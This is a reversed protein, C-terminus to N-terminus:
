DEAKLARQMLESLAERPSKQEFLVDCVADTIPVSVQHKQALDRAARATWVGEAVMVMGALVQDLTEGRGIREGVVRNRSQPSSCTTVLDGLGSLGTFTQRKGGLTEGLRILETLGRTVLAGKANFGLKMGDCMGAALAIVNKLAGAFEVGVVDDSSYLRFHPASFAAQVEKAAVANTSAVTASTPLGSAVEPAITPGSLVAFVEPDFPSLEQKCIRSMCDLSKQEIGKVLSLLITGPRVSGLGHLVQRCTQAPVALVMVDVDRILTVDTTVLISEPIRYGPLFKVNERSAAVRAAQEADYEWLVVDHGARHALLAFTTGWNGAGLIGVRM